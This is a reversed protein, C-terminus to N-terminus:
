VCLDVCLFLFPRPFEWNCKSPLFRHKCPTCFGNSTFTIGYFLGVAATATPPPARRSPSGYFWNALIVNQCCFLVPLCHVQIYLLLIDQQHPDGFRLDSCRYKCSIGDCLSNLAWVIVTLGPALKSLARIAAIMYRWSTLERIFSDWFWVCCLNDIKILIWLGGLSARSARFCTKGHAGLKAISFSFLCLFVVQAPM